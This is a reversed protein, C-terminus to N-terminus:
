CTHSLASSTPCSHPSAWRTERSYLPQSQELVRQMRERHASWRQPVGALIERVREHPQDAAEVLAVQTDILLVQREAHAAIKEAALRLDGLESQRGVHAKQAELEEM